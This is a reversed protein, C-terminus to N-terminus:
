KLGVSRILHNIENTITEAARDAKNDAAGQMFLAAEINRAPWGFNIPGAYPVRAGGVYVTAKTKAAGARVNGALLGSVKPALNTADRKVEGGIARFARELDRAKFGLAKFKAAAERDGVVRYKIGGM